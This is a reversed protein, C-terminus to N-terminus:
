VVCLSSLEVGWQSTVTCVVLGSHQRATSLPCFKCSILFLFFSRCLSFISCCGNLQGKFGETVGHRCRGRYTMATFVQSSARQDPLPFILALSDTFRHPEPFCSLLTLQWSKLLYMDGWKARQYACVSGKLLVSVFVCVRARARAESVTGEFEWSFIVPIFTESWNIILHQM